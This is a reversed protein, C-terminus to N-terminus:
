IIVTCEIISVRFCTCDRLLLKVVSVRRLEMHHPRWFGILSLRNLEWLTCPGKALRHRVKLLIKWTPIGLICDAVNHKVDIDEEDNVKSRDNGKRNIFKGRTAEKESKVNICGTDIDDTLNEHATENDPLMNKYTKRRLNRSHKEKMPVKIIQGLEFGVVNYSLLFSVYVM